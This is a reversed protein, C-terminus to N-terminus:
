LDLFSTSHIFIYTVLIVLGVVRLTAGPDAADADDLFKSSICIRLGWRLGLSDFVGLIPTTPLVNARGWSTWM